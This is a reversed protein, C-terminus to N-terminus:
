GGTKNRQAGPTIGFQKKYCSVFYSESCFNLQYAIETNSLGRNILRKSEILKAAAIYAGTSKGTSRRLLVNLHDKSLGCREAVCAPTIKEYLHSEIFYVARKVAQPYDRRFSSRQVLRTLEVAKNSLFPPIDEIRTLSDITQIYSDSLNYATIESLGGAIAYRAAIAVCCVAFYQMQKLDNNSMRGVVIRQRLFAAMQRELGEADGNKICSYFATEAEYPTHQISTDLQDYLADQTHKSLMEINEAEIHAM